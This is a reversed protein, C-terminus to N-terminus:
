EMGIQEIKTDTIEWERFSSFENRQALELAWAADKGAQQVTVTLTQNRKGVKGQMHFTCTIRFLPIPLRPTATVVNEDKGNVKTVGIGLMQNSM